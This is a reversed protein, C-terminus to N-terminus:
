DEMFLPYWVKWVLFAMGGERWLEYLIAYLLWWWLTSLIGLGVSLHFKLIMLEMTWKYVARRENLLYRRTEKMRDAVALAWQRGKQIVGCSQIWRLCLFTVRRMVAYLVHLFRFVLHFEYSLSDRGMRYMMVVGMWGRRRMKGLMSTAGQGVEQAAQPVGARSPERTKKSSRLWSRKWQACPAVTEEIKGTKFSFSPWSVAPLRASTATHCMRRRMGKENARQFSIRQLMVAASRTSVFPFAVLLCFSYGRQVWTLIFSFFPFFSYMVGIWARDEFFFLFMRLAGLLLIWKVHVVFYAFLPGSFEKLFLIPIVRFFPLLRQRLRSFLFFPHAVQSVLSRFSFKWFFLVRGSVEEGKKKEKKTKRPPAGDKDKGRRRTGWWHLFPSGHVPPSSSSSSPNHAPFPPPAENPSRKGDDGDPHRAVVGPTSDWPPPVLPVSLSTTTTTAGVSSPRQSVRRSSGGGEEEKTEQPRVAVGPFSPLPPSSFFLSASPCGGGGGGKEVDEESSEERNPISPRRERRRRRRGTKHLEEEEEEPLLGVMGRHPSAYLRYAVWVSQLFFICLQTGLGVYQAYMTACWYEVQWVYRALPLFMSAYFATAIPFISQFFIWHFVQSFPRGIACALRFPSISPLTSASWCRRWLHFFFSFFRAVGHRYLCGLPVRAMSYSTKGVGRLVRGMQFAIVVSPAALEAAKRPPLSSFDAPCTDSSGPSLFSVTSVKFSPSSPDGVRENHEDEHYESRLGGGWVWMGAHVEEVLFLFPLRPSMAWASSGDTTCGEGESAAGMIPFDSAQRGEGREGKPAKQTAEEKEKKQGVWGQVEDRALIGQYFGNLVQRFFQWLVPVVRFPGSTSCHTVIRPVQQFLSVVPPFSARLPTGEEEEEEPPEENHREDHLISPHFLDDWPIGRVGEKAGMEDWVGRAQLLANHHEALRLRSSTSLGLQNALPFQIAERSTLPREEECSDALWQQWALALPFTPPASHIETEPDHLTPLVRSTMAITETEEEDKTHRVVHSPPVGDSSAKRSRSRNREHNLVDGAPATGNLTKLLTPEPPRDNADGSDESTDLLRWSPASPHSLLAILEAVRRWRRRQDSFYHLLTWRTIWFSSSSSDVSSQESGCRILQPLADQVYRLFLSSLPTSSRNGSSYPFYPAPSTRHRQVRPIRYVYLSSYPLSSFLAASSSMPEGNDICETGETSHCFRKKIVESEAAKLRERVRHQVEMCSLTHTTRGHNRRRTTDSSLPRIHAVSPDGLEVEIVWVRETAHDAEEEGRDAEGPSQPPAPTPHSEKFLPSPSSGNAGVASPPFPHADPRRFMFELAYFQLRVSGSLLIFPTTSSPSSFALSDAEQEKEKLTAPTPSPLPSALMTRTETATAKTATGNEELTVGFPTALPSVSSLSPSRWWRWVVRKISPPVSLPFSSALFSVSGWRWRRKPLSVPSSSPSFSPSSTPSAFFVCSSQIARRALRQQHAHLRQQRQQLPGNIRTFTDEKEEREEKQPERNDRAASSLTSSAMPAVLCHLLSGHELLVGWASTSNWVETQKLSPSATFFSFPWAWRTIHRVWSFIAWWWSPAPPAPTSTPVALSSIFSSSRPLIFVHDAVPLTVHCLPTATGTLSSSRGGVGKEEEKARCETEFKSAPVVATTISCHTSPAMRERTDERLRLRPREGELMYYRHSVPYSFSSPWFARTCRSTTTPSPVNNFPSGDGREPEAAASINEGKGVVGSPRGCVEGSSNGSEWKEEMATCEMNGKAPTCHTDKGTTGERCRERAEEEQRIPYVAEELGSGHVELYVDDHTLYFYQYPQPCPLASPTSAPTVWQIHAFPFPSHWPTWPDRRVGEHHLAGFFFSVDKRRQSGLPPAARTSASFSLSISSSWSPSSDLMPSPAVQANRPGTGNDLSPSTAISGKARPKARRVASPRAEDEQGALSRTPPRTATRRHLPHLFVELLTRPPSSSVLSLPSTHHTPHPTRFSSLAAPHLCGKEVPMVRMVLFSSPATFPFCPSVIFSFVSGLISGVSSGLSPTHPRRGEARHPPGGKQVCWEDQMTETPRTPFVELDVRSPSWHPCAHAEEVRLPSTCTSARSPPPPATIPNVCSTFLAEWGYPAGWLLLVVVMLRSRTSTGVVLAMLVAFCLTYVLFIFSVSSSSSRVLPDVSSFVTSPAVLTYVSTMRLFHLTLLSFCSFLLSGCWRYWWWWWRHWGEEEEDEEHLGHVAGEEGRPGLPIVQSATPLVLSFSSSFSPHLSALSVNWELAIDPTVAYRIRIPSTSLPSTLAADLAAEEGARGGQLLSWWWWWGGRTTSRAAKRSPVATTGRRANQRKRKRSGQASHDVKEMSANGPGEGQPAALATPLRAGRGDHGRHRHSRWWPWEWGSTITTKEMTGVATPDSASFSAVVPDTTEERRRFQLVSVEREEEEVANTAQIAERYWGMVLGVVSFSSSVSRHRVPHVTPDDQQTLPTAGSERGRAVSLSVEEEALDNDKQIEPVDKAPDKERPQSEVKTSSKSSSTTTPEVSELFSPSPPVWESSPFLFGLRECPDPSFVVRWQQKWEIVMKMWSRFPSATLPTVFRPAELFSFSGPTDSTSLLPTLMSSSTLACAKVWGPSAAAYHPIPFFYDEVRQWSLFLLLFLLTYMGIGRVVIHFISAGMRRLWAQLHQRRRKWGEWLFPFSCRFIRTPPIRKREKDGKQDNRTHRTFCCMSCRRLLSPPAVASTVPLTRIAGRTHTSSSSSSTWAERPEALPPLPTACATQHKWRKGRGGLRRVGDPGGETGRTTSSNGDRHGDWPFSWLLATEEPPKSTTRQRRIGREIRERRPTVIAIMVKWLIRGTSSLLVYVVRLVIHLVSRTFLLPIIKWVLHMALRLVLICFWLFLLHDLWSLYEFTVRHPPDEYPFFSSFPSGATGGASGWNWLSSVIRAMSGKKASWWEM